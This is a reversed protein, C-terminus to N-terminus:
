DSEWWLQGPKRAVLELETGDAVPISMAQEAADDSVQRPVIAAGAGARQAQEAIAAYEGRKIEAWVRDFTQQREKMRDKVRRVATTEDDDIALLIHRRAPRDNFRFRLWAEFGTARQCAMGIVEGTADDHVTVVKQQQM